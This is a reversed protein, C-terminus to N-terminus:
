ERCLTLGHQEAKEKSNFIPGQIRKVVIISGLRGARFITGQSAM